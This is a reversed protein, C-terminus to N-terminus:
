PKDVPKGNPNPVPTERTDRAPHKHDDPEPPVEKSDPRKVPQEKPNGVKSSANNKKSMALEEM